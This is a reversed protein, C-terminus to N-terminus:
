VADYTLPVQRTRLRLQMVSFFLAAVKDEHYIRYVNLRPGAHRHMLPCWSRGGSADHREEEDFDYDEDHPWPM